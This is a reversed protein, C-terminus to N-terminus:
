SQPDKSAETLEHDGPSSESGAVSRHKSAPSLDWCAAPGPGWNRSVLVEGCLMEGRQLWCSLTSALSHELVFLLSKSELPPAQVPKHSRPPLDSQPWRLLQGGREGVVKNCFHIPWSINEIWKFPFHNTKYNLGISTIMLCDLSMNFSFTLLQAERTASCHLIQRCCLLHLNSGQTPFIGQLIFHCSVGTNKGSFYWPHLRRM